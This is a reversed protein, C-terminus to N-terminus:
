LLLWPLSPFFIKLHARSKEAGVRAWGRGGKLNEKNWLLHTFWDEWIHNEQSENRLVRNLSIRCM